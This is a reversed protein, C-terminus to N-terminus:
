NWTERKGYIFYGMAEEQFYKSILLFKDRKTCKVYVHRLNTRVKFKKNGFLGKSVEEIKNKKMAMVFRHFLLIEETIVKM